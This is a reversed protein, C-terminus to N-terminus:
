GNLGGRALLVYLDVVRNEGARSLNLYCFPCYTVVTGENEELIRVARAGALMRDFSMVGGGAGCCAGTGDEIAGQLLGHALESKEKAHCPDHITV